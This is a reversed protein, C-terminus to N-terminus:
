SASTHSPLHRAAVPLGNHMNKVKVEVSGVRRPPDLTLTISVLDPDVEPVRWASTTGSIVSAAHM